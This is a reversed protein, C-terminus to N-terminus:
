MRGRGSDAPHSEHGPLLFSMLSSVQWTEYQAPSWSREVVLMRYWDPASMAWLLDAAQERTVGSRLASKAALSRAVVESDQHRRESGERQLAAIEPDSAAAGRVVEFVEAAREHLRRNIATLRELQRVPDPEAPMEQWWPREALPVPEDDGVVTTYVLEMLLARKSGFAWYVTPVAM